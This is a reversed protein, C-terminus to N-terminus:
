ASSGEREGLTARLEAIDQALKPYGSCHTRHIEEAEDLAVRAADFHRVEIELLALFCLAGGLKLQDGLDRLIAVGEDICRRADDMRGDELHLQGLHGLIYGERARDGQERHLDLAAQFHPLAEDRRSLEFLLVGLYGHVVGEFMRSDVERHIALAAEHCAIAEEVRGLRGYVVGLSGLTHGEVRRDGVERHLTLASELARRSDELRDQDALLGGLNGLTIGEKSRDGQERNMALVAGYHAASEEFRGRDRHIIALLGLAAGELVHRGENRAIALAAECETQAEDFRGQRRALIGIHLRTTGELGPLGPEKSMTLAEQLRRRAEDPRGRDLHLTGLNITLDGEFPRDGLERFLALAAECHVQADEMRGAARESWSLAALVRARLAPDSMSQLVVAGLEISVSSPGQLDLVKAAALYTRGAITEVGASLAARCAAILNELESRLAAFRAPGGRRTLGRIAHDTGLGAFYAGHRAEPNSEARSESGIGADRAKEAAYAQVTAYMSFRPAGHVIRTRLWSKDVLSQIGDIVMPADAFDALDLVAEAAELTFGGQFVSAQAVASQEWPALLSWSWDLAARLTGHRGRKASGLIAFRDGLRERLQELSLMRVRSAALEIALPLGDLIRVIEIVTRRNEDTVSFGPRQARAREEFLEVAETDPDLPELEIVHEGELQLRERTTVLFSAEPARNHWAGLTAEAHTAVQEFNDLIVLTRGRGAIAHGLHVIPDGSSISVGLATAVGSAIGDLGRAEALDCFWVGGPWAELREWGYRRALRTKGTGGVGLLTIFAASAELATSLSALIERRGVFADHEAPLSHRPRPASAAHARDLADGHDSFVRVVDGANGFREAPDLSLLKLIASEWEPELEVVNSPRPPPTTLRLRATELPTEGLFPLQGTRMEFLTVGLAYLDAAPGVREGRVQEPAMYAPTGCIEPQGPDFSDVTADSMVGGGDEGSRSSIGPAAVAGTGAGTWEAAMALGFDTIVVRPAGAGPALIVNASKFDRHVIGARHAADLGDALQQLIPLADEGSLRGEKRIRSALTDGPLFEMTLFSASRADDRHHGLDFIRCVNAHTVSRATLVERKFGRLAAPDTAIEPRITKLAVPVGLELDHACYVEGMGGRALFREIRYRDALLDGPHFAPQPESRELADIAGPITITEDRPRPGHPPNM